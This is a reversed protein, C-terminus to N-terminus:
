EAIRACLKEPLRDFMQQRLAEVRCMQPVTGRIDCLWLGAGHTGVKGEKTPSLVPALKGDFNAQAGDM